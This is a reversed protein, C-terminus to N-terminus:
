RCREAAFWSGGAISVHAGLPARDVTHDGADHRVPEANAKPRKQASKKTKAVVGAGKAAAKKVVPTEAASNKASKKKAAIKKASRRKAADKKAAKKKAGSKKAVKKKVPTM